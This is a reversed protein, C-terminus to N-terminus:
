GGLAPDSTSDNGTELHDAFRQQFARDSDAELTFDYWEFSKELSVRLTLREGLEVRHVTREGSYANVIHLYDLRVGM